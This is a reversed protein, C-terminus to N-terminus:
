DEKLIFSGEKKNHINLTHNNLFDKGIFSPLGEALYGKINPIGAHINQKFKIPNGHEDKFTLECEGLEKLQLPITGIFVVYKTEKNYYNIRTRKLSSESLITFPCGTDVIGRSLLFINKGRVSFTVMDREFGLSKGKFLPIKIPMEYFWSHKKKLYLSLLWKVSM